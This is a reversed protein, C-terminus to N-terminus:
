QSKVLPFVYWSPLPISLSRGFPREKLRSQHVQVHGFHKPMKAEKPWFYKLQDSNVLYPASPEECTKYYKALWIWWFFRSSQESCSNLSRNVRRHHQKRTGIGTNDCYCDAPSPTRNCCHQAFCFTGPEPIILKKISTTKAVWNCPVPDSSLMSNSALVYRILLNLFIEEIVSFYPSYKVWQNWLPEMLAQSFSVQKWVM